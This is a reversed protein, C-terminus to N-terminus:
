KDDNDKRRRSNDSYTTYELNELQNDTRDHNKHHCICGKPPKGFYAEIILKHVSKTRYKGDLGKLKVCVYGNLGIKKKANLEKLKSNIKSVSYIQGEHPNAYYNRAYGNIKKWGLKEIIELLPKIPTQKDIM